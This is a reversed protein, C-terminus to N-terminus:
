VTCMNQLIDWFIANGAPYLIADLLFPSFLVLEVNQGAFADVKIRTIAFLIFFATLFSFRTFDM